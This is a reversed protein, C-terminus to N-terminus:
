PRHEAPVEGVARREGTEVSIRDGLRVFASLGRVRFYTPAVERVIGGVQVFPLDVNAAEVAAALRALSNM